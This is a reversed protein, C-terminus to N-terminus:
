GVFGFHAFVVFLVLQAPVFAGLIVRNTWARRGALALLVFLPFAPLVFRDASMLPTWQAERFWIVVATVVVYATYAPPLRRWMLAAAAVIALAAFLNLAEEPRTGSMISGISEIFTTWPFNSTSDGDNSRRSCAM